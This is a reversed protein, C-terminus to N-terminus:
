QRRWSMETPSGRMRHKGRGGGELYRRRINVAANKQRNMKLRCRPCELEQGRLDRVKFRCQSCTKSTNRAPVKATLAKGAIRRHITKWPTRANRKRRGRGVRGKGIM